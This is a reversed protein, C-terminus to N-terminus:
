ITFKLYYGLGINKTQDAETTPQQKYDLYRLTYAKIDKCEM